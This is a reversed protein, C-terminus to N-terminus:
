LLSYLYTSPNNIFDELAKVIGECIISKKGKAGTKYTALIYFTKRHNKLASKYLM